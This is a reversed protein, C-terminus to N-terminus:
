SNECAAEQFVGLLVRRIMVRVQERRVQEHEISDIELGSAVKEAVSAALAANAEQAEALNRAEVSLVPTAGVGFTVLDLDRVTGSDIACRVAVGAMAFDGHRRSLEDFGFFYGPQDVPWIVHTLLEDDRRATDYLGLFFARAPVRRVGEKKSKLVLGANLTVACAPMEASPDALALSGCTTGRNRVAPHAVYAMAKSVLSVQQRILPSAAVQAHRALAGVSVEKGDDTLKIGELASVRNIDILLETSSLRLNMAPVLSQGGALVRADAGYEAMLECVDDVSDPCCYAFDPAKM